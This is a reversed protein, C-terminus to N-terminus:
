HPLHNMETELKAIWDSILKNQIKTYQQIRLQARSLLIERLLFYRRLPHSQIKPDITENGPIIQILGEVQDNTSCILSEARLPPSAEVWINLYKSYFPIEIGIHIEASPVNPFLRQIFFRSGAAHLKSYSKELDRRTKAVEYPSSAEEKKMKQCFIKRIQFLNSWSKEFEPKELAM